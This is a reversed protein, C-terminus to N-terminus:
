NGHKGELLEKIRVIKEEYFNKLWELEIMQKRIKEAKLGLIAIEKQMSNTMTIKRLEAYYEKKKEKTSEISKTSIDSFYKIVKYEDALIKKNEDSYNDKFRERLKSILLRKYKSVFVGKFYYGRGIQEDDVFRGSDFHLLNPILIKITMRAEL